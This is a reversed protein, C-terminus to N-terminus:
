NARYGDFFQDLLREAAALLNKITEKRESMDVGVSEAREIMALIEPGQRLAAALGDRHSTTLPNIKNAM